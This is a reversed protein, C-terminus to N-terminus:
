DERDSAVFVPEPYLLWDGKVAIPGWQAATEFSNKGFILGGDDHRDSGVSYVLPINDVIRYRVPDGTIRDAPVAPLLDPTLTQLTAPYSAHRRRYLELAIGTVIGDRQGLYREAVVAARSIHPAIRSLPAYKASSLASASWARRNFDIVGSIRLPAHLGAEARDIVADYERLIEKRSGSAAMLAPSIIRILKSYYACINGWGQGLELVGAFTLRGDGHGDDTYIRQLFDPVFLRESEFSLIDSATQTVSLRHALRVWRADEWLAPEDRLLDGVLSIAMSRIGISVLDGSVFNGQGHLQDALSLMANVNREARAADHDEAALKMDDGLTRAMPRAYDQYRLMFLSLANDRVHPETSSKDSASAMEPDNISGNRGLIYGFFPKESAARVLELDDAHRRLWAKMDPWHRGDHNYNLVNPWYELPSNPTPNRMALIARRYIPWARQDEPTQLAATNLQAIYDVKPTARGVFLQVALAAYFVLLCVSMWKVVHLARSAFPRGRRKARGILKAARSPDGFSRAVDDAGAGTALADAFHAILEDAVAVKEARSLWTRNVVQVVIRDAAEPLAAARIKARWDLRGTIRGRWLDHMPTLRLKRFSRGDVPSLVESM